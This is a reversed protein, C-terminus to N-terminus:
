PQPQGFNLAGRQGSRRRSPRRLPNAENGTMVVNTITLDDGVFAGALVAAGGYTCDNTTNNTCYGGTLTVNSISLPNNGITYYDEEFIRDVGDTQQIITNAASGTGVISLSYGSAANGIRIEGTELSTLDYTGSGIYITSTAPANNNAL